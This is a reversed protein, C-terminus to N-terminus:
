VKYKSSWDPDLVSNESRDYIRLRICLITFQKGRCYDCNVGITIRKPDAYIKSGVKQGLYNEVASERTLGMNSWKTNRATRLIDSAAM